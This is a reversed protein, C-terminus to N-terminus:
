GEAALVALWGVPDLSDSINVKGVSLDEECSYPMDWPETAVCDDPLSGLNLYFGAAIYQQTAQDDSSSILANGWPDTYYTGSALSLQENFIMPNGKFTNDLVRQTGTQNRDGSHFAVTNCTTGTCFTFPDRIDFEHNLVMGLNAAEVTPGARWQEYDNSDATTRIRREFSTVDALAPLSYGCNSPNLPDKTDSDVAVGFDLKFGARFLETGSSSYVMAYMTHFQACVRRESATSSHDIFRVWYGEPTQFITEKFGMDPEDQPVKDAVYQYGVFPAGPILAPNSGHEHGFACWYTPDIQPHWTGYTEGDWRCENGARRVWATCLKNAAPTTLGDPVQADLTATKTSESVLIMPVRSGESSNPAPGALTQWGYSLSREYVNAVEGDISVAGSLEWGNLWGPTDKYREVWVLAVRAPRTLFFKFFDADTRNSWRSEPMLVDWGDYAGANTVVDDSNDTFQFGSAMQRPSYIVDDVQYRRIDDRDPRWEYFRSVLARVPFPSEIPDLPIGRGLFSAMQDRGVNDAPCYSRGGCGLTIGADAVRNINAEHLSGDDDDFYNVSTAPLQFARALFSGMQARSVMDSPCYENNGCGLTIGADAVRNINAEHPSGDDDGFYDVSSAPLDLARALFSAMQARSVDDNPCYIQYGCGGTVGVAAIAEIYAEHTNLDDDVFTGGPPLEGDESAVGVTDSLGVFGTLVLAILFSYTLSRSVRISPVM